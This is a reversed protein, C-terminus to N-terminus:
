AAERFYRFVDSWGLSVEHWEVGDPLCVLQAIITSNYAPADPVEPLGTLEGAAAARLDAVVNCGPVGLRSTVDFWRDGQLIAFGGGACRFSVLIASKLPPKM